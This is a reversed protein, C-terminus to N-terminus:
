SLREQLETFGGVYEFFGGGENIFIQPITRVDRGVKEILEEKQIDVGVVQYDVNLGKSESLEVAQTCFSCGPRGYIVVKM